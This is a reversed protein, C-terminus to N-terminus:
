STASVFIGVGDTAYATATAEDIAEGGIGPALIGAPFLPLPPLLCPPLIPACVPGMVGPPAPIATLAPPGPPPGGDLSVFRQALCPTSLLVGALLAPGFPTQVKM